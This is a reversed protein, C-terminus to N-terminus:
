RKYILAYIFLIITIGWLITHPFHFQSFNYIEGLNDKGKEYIVEVTDGIEFSFMLPNYQERVNYELGNISYELYYFNAHEGQGFELYATNIIKGTTISGRSIKTFYDVSICTNIICIFFFYGWRKQKVDDKIKWKSILQSYNMNISHM